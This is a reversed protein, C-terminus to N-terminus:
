VSAYFHASAVPEMDTLPSLIYFFFRVREHDEKYTYLECCFILSDDIALSALLVWYIVQSALSAKM